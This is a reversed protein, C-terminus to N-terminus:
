LGSRFIRVKHSVFDARRGSVAGPGRYLRVLCFLSVSPIDSSRPDICRFEIAFLVFNPPFKSYLSDRRNRVVGGVVRIEGMKGLGWGLESDELHDRQEARGRRRSPMGNLVTVPNYLPMRNRDPNPLRPAFLDKKRNGETRGHGCRFKRRCPIQIM